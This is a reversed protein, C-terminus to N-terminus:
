EKKIPIFPSIGIAMIGENARYMSPLQSLPLPNNGIGAEITYGPLNYNMIFWDKYGAYGSAIPTESVQYGSEEGFKKAIEYSFDPNYDLFKWYIVNGQTHYSITMSFNRKLTFDYVAKSETASLPATGVFDRPAPSTYGLNYKTEKAKEWMAPYNLNLDTGKINAKWGEPFAIKPYDGSISLASRYTESNKDFLNNVLDVGDPNVLPVTYLTSENFLDRANFGYIKENNMYAIAYNELFLLVLPTTIWENAHHSANYFIEKKGTGMTTYYLPRKLESLGISNLTIYPYRAVLGYLIYKVLISSYPINIPVLNFNYPVIIKEGIKLNNIEIDPNATEILKQSSNNEMAIKYISDNQKITHYTFGYLYPELYQWVTPTVIDSQSINQNKQFNLLSSRLNDDYIDDFIGKYYGARNLALKVLYIYYGREGFFVTKM